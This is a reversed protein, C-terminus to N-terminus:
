SSLDGQASQQMRDRGLLQRNTTSWPHGHGLLGQGLYTGGLVVAVYRASEGLLSDYGLRATGVQFLAWFLKVDYATHAPKERRVVTEVRAMRQQRTQPLEGPETPVLVTFRHAELAIPLALSVFQVWDSLAMTSRPLQDEAPLAVEAFDAWAAGDSVEYAANLADVHRYRHALFRRYLDAHEETVPAYTFGIDSRVFRRWDEAAGPHGPLVPAFRIDEFRAFSSQWTENLRALADAEGFEAVYFRRLSEQYRVHLAYAGHAPRWAQVLALERRVFASWDRLVRAAVPPEASFEIEDFSAYTVEWSENLRELADGGSPSDQAYLRRLFGRFRRNLQSPNGLEGLTGAVPYSELFSPETPDGLAVGPLQRYRFREVIRVRRGALGAPAALAPRRLEDFISADPCTETALRIAARMGLQTGRWRFMLEAHDIFLRSREEEWDEDLSAGLWDALWDLFEAPTTRTDLFAEARATREEVTSLTGEANALYRELFSASHPDERYAAPLFKELYSFRPYYVRLSRIRPTARGDGSLVLRLELYRGRAYQLLLEWTGSGRQQQERPTFPRHLPIEAGDGRRVPAPEPHWTADRLSRLEDAARSHIQVQTGAPLCADLLVRHWVCGPERGDFCLGDVEGTSQFRQRPQPAIPYWRELLDYFVASDTAVLGKGSFRRLPLLRPLIELSLEADYATLAFALAQNGDPMVLTLEGEIEGAAGVGASPVFAFDHARVWPDSLVQEFIEGQLEVRNVPLGDRFRHIVACGDVESSALVLVSDDPLAEVAVPARVEPPSGNALSLGAPFRRQAGGHAAGSEPVFDPEEVGPDVGVPGPSVVGLTRDLRWLRAADRDLIWVGGDPAACLDFPTLEVQVPWVKWVPPGGAHLDFVLLGAPERTGVVLYHERTIALGRLDPRPTPGRDALPRFEGTSADLPRDDDLNDISWYDGADSSNPPLFRIRRNDNDIWYFSGYRDCAAGRREDATLEEESARQPVRLVVPMLSLSAREEDWWLTSSGHQELRPEWDGAGTLMHFHTGNIDM